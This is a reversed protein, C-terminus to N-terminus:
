LGSEPWRVKDRLPLEAVLHTGVKQSSVVDLTGGLAEVRDILNRLGSGASPEAGGGGNDRVEVVVWDGAVEVTVTAHTAAAHKAVNALAESCVFYVVVEISEPMRREAVDLQVPTPCRAALAELAAALGVERLLRPHLGAALSRLEELTDAVHAELEGVLQKAEGDVRACEAALRSALLDLRHEAGARLRAELRRHEEDGATVLRRRSANLEAVQARVEAQRHANVSALRTATGIADLLAPDDLLSHHHVIVALPGSGGDVMTAVRREDAGPLSLTRGATGVFGNVEASWYGVELTPDGLVRALSDRLADSRAEGLEVVLDAVAIQDWPRSLLGNALGLATACLVAQYALLSLDEAADGAFVVRAVAGGALVAALVAALRLATRRARRESAVSIAYRRVAVLVLLVSLGITLAESRWVPTVLAALYFGGVAVREFRSEARGTPFTVLADILPGRHVYIGHSGIWALWIADVGGFNGVFWTFGSLTLLAGVHSEPRRSWVVLGAGILSWGAVLDPMWKAPDDFGFATWEAALALSVGAPWLLVPLRKLAL